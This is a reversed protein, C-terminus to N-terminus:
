NKIKLKTMNDLKSLYGDRLLGKSQQFDAVKNFHTNVRTSNFSPTQNPSFLNIRISNLGRMAMLLKSFFEGDKMQNSNTQEKNWEKSMEDNLKHEKAKFIM